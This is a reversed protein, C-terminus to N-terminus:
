RTSQTFYAACCTAVFVVLGMGALLVALLSRPRELRVSSGPPPYAVGPYLPQFPHNHEDVLRVRSIYLAWGVALLLFGAAAYVALPIDAGQDVAKLASFRSASVALSNNLFHLLMPLYLSRTTLYVFHLWIGLLAAMTGQCPDVHILGFFFSSFLVGLVPGYRGVLGRGLFGRCWLEEGIGPGVGILLVALSLDWQNFVKVMEEMGPVGLDSLSKLHFVNRLLDYSGNGALVLGPFAALAILTHVLSPARLALQRPWDRGVVLRIVLLSIGIVLFETVGFSVLM